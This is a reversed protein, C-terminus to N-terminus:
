LAQQETLVTDRWKKATGKGVHALRAIQDLSADPYQALVKRVRQEATQRSKRRTGVLSIVQARPETSKARNQRPAALPSGGGTPPRDFDTQKSAVQTSPSHRNVTTDSSPAHPVDTEAQALGKAILEIRRAGDTDGADLMLAVAVPALDVGKRQARRIRQSWQRTTAKIARHLMAHSAQSLMAGADQSLPALAGTLLFFLPIVSGRIGIQLWAPLFGAAPTWTSTVFAISNYTSFLILATLIFGHALLEARIAAKQDLDTTRALRGWTARVRRQELFSHVEAAISLAVGVALGFDLTVGTFYAMTGLLLGVLYLLPVLTSAANDLRALLNHM